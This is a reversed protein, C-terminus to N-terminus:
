LETCHQQWAISFSVVAVGATAIIYFLVSSFVVHLVLTLLLILLQSLVICCHSVMLTICSDCYFQGDPIHSIGGCIQHQPSHCGNCVVIQNHESSVGCQCVSCISGETTELAQHTIHIISSM